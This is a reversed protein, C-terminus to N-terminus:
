RLSPTGASKLRTIVDIGYKINGRNVINRNYKRFLRKGEALTYASVSSIMGTMNGVQKGLDDIDACVFDVLGMEKAEAAGFESATFVRYKLGKESIRTLLYPSIVAPLLGLRIEPLSFLTDELSFVVDSVALFGLAGGYAHGHVISIIVKDSMYFEHFVSALKRSQLYNVRRGSRGSRQMWNIDAGACFSRGKGKLLIMKIDQRGEIERMARLLEDIMESNVANRSEPRNLWIVAIDDNIETQVM